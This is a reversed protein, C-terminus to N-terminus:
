LSPAVCIVQRYDEQGEQKEEGCRKFLNQAITMVM